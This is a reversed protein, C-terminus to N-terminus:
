RWASPKRYGQTEIDQANGNYAEAKFGLTVKEKKILKKSTTTAHIETPSMRAQVKVPVRVGTAYAAGARIELHGSPFSWREHIEFGQTLTLGTLFDHSDNHKGDVTVVVNDKSGYPQGKEQAQHPFLGQHAEDQAQDHGLSNSRKRPRKLNSDKHALSQSRSTKKDIELLKQPIVVTQVVRLEGEGEFAGILAADGKALAKEPNNKPLKKIEKQISRTSKSIIQANKQCGISKGEFAKPGEYIAQLAAM